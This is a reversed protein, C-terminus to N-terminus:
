LATDSTRTVVWVPQAAVGGDLVTFTLDHTIIDGGNASPLAGELRIEPLVVQLTEVGTSLAAGTWTAVLSMPSDTDIASVMTAADYEVTLKGTITRLGVAPKSKRGAGCTNFRDTKAGHDIKVSGSRVCLTTAASALATATPSTLTGTSLAAGAFSFLTGGVAYTPTTYAPVTTMDRGDLGVKLKVLDAQAFDFEVDTVVCGPFTFAGVVGSAQPLGKQVTLAPLDDGLTFVQQYTSGAVLTSVGSGLAAQLLVGLGKSVAEVTLSGSAERSVVVRRSSRAVRAGPRLGVGQKVNKKLDFSEDAFEVWRTPTVATGYTTEVGFGVSCDQATTM